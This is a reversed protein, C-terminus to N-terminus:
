SNPHHYNPMLAQQAWSCDLSLFTTEWYGQHVQRWSNRWYLLSLEDLDWSDPRLLWFDFCNLDHITSVFAILLLSPLWYYMKPLVPYIYVWDWALLMAYRIKWWLRSFDEEFLFCAFYLSGSGLLLCTPELPYCIWHVVSFDVCSQVFNLHFSLSCLCIHWHLLIELFKM